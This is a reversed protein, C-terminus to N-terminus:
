VFVNRVHCISLNTLTVTGCPTPNSSPPLLGSECITCYMLVNLVPSAFKRKQMEVIFSSVLKGKLVRKTKVCKIERYM